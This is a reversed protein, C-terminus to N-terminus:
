GGWRVEVWQLLFIENQELKLWHQYFKKQINKKRLNKKYINKSVKRLFIYKKSFKKRLNRKLHLFKESFINKSFKKGVIKKAFKKECYKEFSKKLIKKSFIKELM